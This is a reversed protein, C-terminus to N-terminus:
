KLKCVSTIIETNEQAIKLIYHNQRKGAPNYRWVAFLLEMDLMFPIALAHQSIVKDDCLTLPRKQSKMRSWNQGSVEKHQKPWNWEGM